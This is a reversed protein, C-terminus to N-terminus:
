HHLFQELSDLAETYAEPEPGEAPVVQKQHSSTNYTVPATIPLLAADRMARVLQNVARTEFSQQLPTVDAFLAQIKVLQETITKVAVDPESNPGFTDNCVTALKKLPEVSEMLHSFMQETREKLENWNDPSWEINLAFESRSTLLYLAKHVLIEPQITKSAGPGLFYYLREEPTQPLEEEPGGLLKVIVQDLRHNLEHAKLRQLVLPCQPDTHERKCTLKKSTSAQATSSTSATPAVSTPPAPPPSPPTPSIPDYLESAPESTTPKSPTRPQQPVPFGSYVPTPAVPVPALQVPTFPVPSIPMFGPPLQQLQLQSMAPQAWSWAVQRPNIVRLNHMPPPPRIGPPNSPPNQIDAAEEQQTAVRARGRGRPRGRERGNGRGISKGRGRAVKAAPEGPQQQARDLHELALGSNNDLWAQYPTGAQFLDQQEAPAQEREM